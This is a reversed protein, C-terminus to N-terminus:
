GIPYCGAVGPATERCIKGYNSCVVTTYWKGATCTEVWSRSPFYTGQCRRDGGNCEMDMVPEIGSVPETVIPKPQGFLFDWLWFGGIVNADGVSSFVIGVALVLVLFVIILNNNEM